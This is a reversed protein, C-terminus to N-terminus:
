PKPQTGAPLTLVTFHVRDFVDNGAPGMDFTLAPRSGAKLPLKLLQWEDTNVYLQLPPATNERDRCTIFVGDGKGEQVALAGKPNLRALLVMRGAEGNDWGLEASSEELRLNMLGPVDQDPNPSVSSKGVPSNWRNTEANYKWADGGSCTVALGALRDLLPVGQKLEPSALFARAADRRQRLQEEREPFVFRLRGFRAPDHFGGTPNWATSGRQDDAFHNIRYINAAWEDGHFPPLHRATPMEAFGLRGEVQWGRGTKKVRVDLSAPNWANFIVMDAPNPDRLIIADFFAGLPNTDIEYYLRGTGGPDLYLELCDNRYVHDDHRSRLGVLYADEAQIAFYLFVDDWLLATRTPEPALTAKGVVNTFAIWTANKWAPKDLNGDVEFPATARRCEYVLPPTTSAPIVQSFVAAGALLWVGGSLCLNRYSM